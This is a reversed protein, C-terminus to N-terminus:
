APSVRSVSGGPVHRAAPWGARGPRPPWGGPPAPHGDVLHESFRGPFHMLHDTAISGTVAVTGAPM